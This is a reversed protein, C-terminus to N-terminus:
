RFKVWGSKSPSAGTDQLKLYRAANRQFVRSMYEYNGYLKVADSHWKTGKIHVSRMSLDRVKVLKKGNRYFLAPRSLRYAIMKGKRKRGFTERRRYRQNRNSSKKKAWNAEDAQDKTTPRLVFSKGRMADIRYRGPVKKKRGTGRVKNTPIAIATKRAHITGGADQIPLYDSKTGSVANQRDISRSASAKYTVISKTTYPTRVIMSKGVNRQARTTVAQATQSLTEATVTQMAEPIKELAKLYERSNSTILIMSM